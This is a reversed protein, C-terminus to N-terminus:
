HYKRIYSVDVLVVVPVNIQKGLVYYSINVSHGFADYVYPRVDMFDFLLLFRNTDDRKILVTITVSSKM